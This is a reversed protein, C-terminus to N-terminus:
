VLAVRGCRGPRGIQNAAAMGRWGCPWRRRGLWRARCAYCRRPAKTWIICPAALPMRRKAHGDASRGARGDREEYFIGDVTTDRAYASAALLGLASLAVRRHM